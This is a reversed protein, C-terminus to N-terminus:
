AWLSPSAHILRTVQERVGSWTWANLYVPDPEEEADDFFLLSRLALFRADEGYKKCFLNMIGELTYGRDCLLLIDSFDKKSGRNTIANVKMAAMDDLSLCRIGDLLENPALLPYAHLLLDVKVGNIHLCLSGPTRGVLGFNPSVTVLREQLAVSDFPELCFLDIDVSVRHGFRLALSTGGGLSFPTLVETAMFQKLLALVPPLVAETRMM